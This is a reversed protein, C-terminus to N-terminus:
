FLLQPSCLRRSPHCASSVSYPDPCNPVSDIGIPTLIGSYILIYIAFWTGCYLGHVDTCWVSAKEHLQTKKKPTINLIAVLLENLLEDPFLSSPRSSSSPYTSETM